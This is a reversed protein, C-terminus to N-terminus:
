AQPQFTENRSIYSTKWPQTKGNKSSQFNSRKRKLFYLFNKRLKEKRFYLFPQIAKKIEQAQISFHLNGNGSIYSFILFKKLAPIKLSFDHPNLGSLALNWKRFYFFKKLILALFNWKRFYLSNKKPHIKEPKKPKKTKQNKPNQYNRDDSRMDAFQFYGFYAEVKGCSLYDVNTHM